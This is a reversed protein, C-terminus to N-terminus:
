AAGGTQIALFREFRTRCDRYAVEAVPRGGFLSVEVAEVLGSMADLAGPRFTTRALIERSTFSAPPAAASRPLAAITRLLLVHVAEAFRGAAALADVEDLPVVGMAPDPPGSSAGVVKPAGKRERGRWETALWVVLLVALVGLVVYFLASAVASSGSPARVSADAERPDAREATRGTRHRGPAGNRTGSAGTQQDFSQDVLRRGPLETQYARENLVRDLAQQVVEPDPPSFLAVIVVGAAFLGV